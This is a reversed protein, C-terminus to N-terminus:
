VRRLVLRHTWQQSRSDRALRYRYSSKDQTRIQFHKINMQMITSLSHRKECDRDFNETNYINQVRLYSQADQMMMELFLKQVDYNYDTM